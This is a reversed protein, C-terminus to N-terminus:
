RRSSSGLNRFLFFFLAALQRIRLNAGWAAEHRGKPATGWLRFGSAGAERNAGPAELISVIGSNTRIRAFGRLGLAQRRIGSTQHRIDSTQHRNGSAQKM